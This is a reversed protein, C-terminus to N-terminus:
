SVVIGFKRIEEFSIQGNAIGMNLLLQDYQGTTGLMAERNVALDIVSDWDSSNLILALRFDAEEEGFEEALQKHVQTLHKKLSIEGSFFAEKTALVQEDVESTSMGTAMEANIDRQAQKQEIASTARSNNLPAQDAQGGNDPRNNADSRVLMTLQPSPTPLNSATDFDIAFRLILVAGVTLAVVFFLKKRL